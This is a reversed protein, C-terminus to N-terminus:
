EGQSPRSVEAFLGANRRYIEKYLPYQRRYAEVHAPVPVVPSDHVKVMAECAEALSAYEGCGVGALMAAGMCAQEEINTAYIERGFVDAQIQLWLRSRAGGGSAIIRNIAIGMGEFIDVSEKLGFVVAEMVARVLHERGHRLSLGWFMAKANPDLHPTREGLLYPLFIVGDSGPSVKDALEDMGKYDMNQLVNQKLWKLSLGASLMAGLVYWTGPQVNRFTHTNMGPNFVPRDVPSYIQGGTGITSTMVGPQIVGNGLAQLPQDAGGFVVPTGEPLGTEAAAAKTVKGAIAFSEGCPPYKGPDLGLLRILEVSWKGTGTDYSLSGSADTHDTAAEGTLKLRIFDKPLVVVSTREYNRPEHEKMWLLSALLFGPFVPNLTIRGFAERGAKAYIAEVQAQSRGDLHIIAPRVVEHNRDLPVLGHMQGSLGICRIERPNLSAKRLCGRISLVAAKWWDSPYQEAQMREPIKVPYEEAHLAVVKGCEDTVVTKLSSTGVDIGMLLAM